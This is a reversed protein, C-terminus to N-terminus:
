YVSCMGWDANFCRDIKTRLRHRTWSPRNVDSYTRSFQVSTRFM